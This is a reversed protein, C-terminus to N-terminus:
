PSMKSVSSIFTENPVGNKSVAGQIAVSIDFFNLIAFINSFESLTKESTQSPSRLSEGRQQALTIAQTLNDPNLKMVADLTRGLDDVIPFRQKMADLAYLCIRMPSNNDLQKQNEMQAALSQIVAASVIISSFSIPFIGALGLQILEKVLASIESAAKTTREWSTTLVEQIGENWLTSSTDLFSRRPQNAIIIFANHLILIFNRHLMLPRYASEESDLYSFDEALFGHKWMKFETNSREMDLIGDLM